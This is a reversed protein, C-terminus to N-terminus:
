ASTRAQPQRVRTDGRWVITTSVTRAPSLRQLSFHVEADAIGAVLSRDHTVMVVASGAQSALERLEDRIELATPHDVAATPEDALIIVPRHVLARAVAARQRQGGSLHQPKKGMQDGLGLRAVLHGFRDEDLTAGSIAATLLINDRVSLFPLLGGHQLVYGIASRRIRALDNDSLEERKWAKREGGLRARITFSSLSTPALVLALMDLLTSKGCGSAGVVAIFEGRHVTLEPVNLVFSVGGKSREKGVERLRYIVETM